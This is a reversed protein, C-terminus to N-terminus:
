PSLILLTDLLTHLFSQKDMENIPAAVGAICSCQFDGLKITLRLLSPQDAFRIINTMEKHM